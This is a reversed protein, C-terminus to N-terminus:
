QGLISRKLRSLKYKLSDKLLKLLFPNNQKYVNSILAEIERNIAEEYKFNYHRNLQELLYIRERLVKVGTHHNSIGGDHKRYVAMVEDLYKVKGYNALLSILAIDGSAVKTFWDPFSFDPPRRFVISATPIFWRGIVEEIEYTDKFFHSDAFLSFQGSNQHLVEANHFCMVYDPNAELFDVQKQLKYPDTWYDDGECIAIYKGRAAEINQMFNYRGTPKGGIYIVDARKRLFLRIKNPHKNAYAQCIERTGDTSGDEGLLIETPFTTKQSLTNHLCKKIFEIHEYTVICISVLPKRIM